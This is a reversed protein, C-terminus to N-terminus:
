ALIEAIRIVVIAAFAMVLPIIGVSLFRSSRWCSLSQSTGTFEKACLLLILVAVAVISMISTFGMAAVSIVSTVTTIL